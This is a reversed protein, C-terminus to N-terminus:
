MHMGGNPEVTQGTMYSADDSLLFAVVGALEAPDAVRGLPAQQMGMAVFAPPLLALMPTDVAGPAIANVRVGWAGLEVAAARTLGLVGAKAAAYHGSGPFGM